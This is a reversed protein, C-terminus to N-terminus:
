EQRPPLPIVFDTIADVIRDPVFAGITGLLDRLLGQTNLAALDM